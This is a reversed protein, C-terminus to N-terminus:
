NAAQTAQTAANKPVASQTVAAFVVARGDTQSYECTSFLFAQKVDAAAISETAPQSVVSRSLKDEIYSTFAADDAFSTQVILDSGNTLVVSFTTLKYNMTPTLIYVTRHADFQEQDAFDAFAAFMSGDNMHHGYLGTLKDTFDPSNTYDAFICGASSTIGSSGDFSRHLYTENDSAQVVPYDIVTDPVKIWAVIDPNTARLSDWDVTMDALDDTPEVIAVDALDEYYKQQHLYSYIIIGLAILCGVIIVICVIQIIRRRKSPKKAGDHKPAKEISHKGKAM